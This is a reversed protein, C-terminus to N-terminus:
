SKSLRRDHTNNMETEQMPLTRIQAEYIIDIMAKIMVPNARESRTGKMAHESYYCPGLNM